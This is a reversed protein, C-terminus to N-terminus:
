SIDIIKLKNLYDILNSEKVEINDNQDAKRLMISKNAIENDGIIALHSVRELRAQKIKVGLKEESDDVTIRFNNKVLIDKLQM